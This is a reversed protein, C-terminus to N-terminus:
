RLVEKIEDPERFITWTGPPLDKFLMRYREAARAEGTVDRICIRAVSHPYKRALAAYIEPDKEGSDGVLM